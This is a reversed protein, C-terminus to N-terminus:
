SPASILRAGGGIPLPATSRGTSCRACRSTAVSAPTNAMADPLAAIQRLTGVTVDGYTCGCSECDVSRSLPGRPPLAGSGCAPCVLHDPKSTLQALVSTRRM